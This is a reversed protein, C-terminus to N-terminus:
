CEGMGLALSVGRRLRVCRARWASKRGAPHAAQEGLTAIVGCSLWSRKIRATVM